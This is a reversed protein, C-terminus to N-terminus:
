LSRRIIMMLILRTGYRSGLSLSLAALAQELWVKCAEGLMLIM